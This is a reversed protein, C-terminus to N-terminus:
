FTFDNNFISAQNQGYRKLHGASMVLQSSTTFQATAKVVLSKQPTQWCSPSSTQASSSATSVEVSVTASSVSVKASVMASIKSAISSAAGATAAAPPETATAVINAIGEKGIVKALPTGGPIKGKLNSGVIKFKFM